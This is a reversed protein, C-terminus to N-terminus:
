SFPIFVQLIIIESFESVNSLLAINTKSVFPRTNVCCELIHKKSIFNELILKSKRLLIRSIIEPHGLIFFNHLM